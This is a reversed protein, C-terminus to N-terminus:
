SCQSPICKNGLPIPEDSTLEFLYIKRLHDFQSDDYDAIIDWISQANTKFKPKAPSPWFAIYFSNPVGGGAILIKKAFDMRRLFFDRTANETGQNFGHLYLYKHSKVVALKCFDSAFATLASNSESEIAWVLNTVAKASYNREEINIIKTIAIDLLWEGPEKNGNPDVTILKLSCDPDVLNSYLNKGLISVFLSSRNQNKKCFANDKQSIAESLSNAIIALISTKM